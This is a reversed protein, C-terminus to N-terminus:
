KILHKQVLVALDDNKDHDYIHRHFLDLKELLYTLIMKEQESLNGSVIASVKAMEQFLKLIEVKGGETIEVIQSRKDTLDDTQTVFDNKILRRLIEMGTTKEHVNRSTLESKTMAGYNMLMALYTFEDITQVTANEFAKKSYNKVYRFLTGVLTSLNIDRENGYKHFNKINEKKDLFAQFMWDNFGEVSLNNPDEQAQEYTAIKDIFYKILDYRNM